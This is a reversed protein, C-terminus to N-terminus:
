RPASIIILRGTKWNAIKWNVAVEHYTQSGDDSFGVFVLNNYELLEDRIFFM